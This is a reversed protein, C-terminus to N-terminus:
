IGCGAILKLVMDCGVLNFSRMGNGDLHKWGTDRGRYKEWGADRRSKTGM